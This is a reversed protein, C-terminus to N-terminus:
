SFPPLFVVIGWLVGNPKGVPKQLVVIGWSILDRSSATVWAALGVLTKEIFEQRVGKLDKGEAKLM